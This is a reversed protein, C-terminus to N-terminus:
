AKTLAARLALAGQRLLGVDHGAAVFTAGLSMAHHAPEAGAVLIGAAKGSAVIRRIADDIAARVEPAGANGPFGMDASLDSPGIFVGDVGEVACIDELNALAKRTEVQVLLCTQANATTLYDPTLGYRSARGLTGMGRVGDPAYRMARVMARAQEATDIMPVLVTQAGIDLVQKVLWTEGVPVRVVAHAGGAQMAQLQALMLPLDNPAHEGDIVLWDYGCHSLLEAVTPSAFAVWLGVQPKGAALAAKFGNVPAPM